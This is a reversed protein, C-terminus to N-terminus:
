LGYTATKRAWNMWSCTWERILSMQSHRNSKWMMQMGEEKSLHLSSGAKEVMNTTIQSM